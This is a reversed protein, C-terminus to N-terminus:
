DSMGHILSRRPEELFLSHLFSLISIKLQIKYFSYLSFKSDRSAQDIWWPPSPILLFHIIGTGRGNKKMFNLWPLPSFLESNEKNKGMKWSSNLSSMERFVKAPLLKSYNLSSPYLFFAPTIKRWITWKSKNRGSRM